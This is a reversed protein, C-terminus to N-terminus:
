FTITKIAWLCNTTIQHKGRTISCLVVGDVSNHPKLPKTRYRLEVHVSVERDRKNLIALGFHISEGWELYFLLM